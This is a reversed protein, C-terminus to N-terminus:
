QAAQPAFPSAAPSSILTSYQTDVTNFPYDTDGYTFILNTKVGKTPRAFWSLGLENTESATQGPSVEYNERDIDEYDWFLRLNGFTRGFRYSLDLDSEIM